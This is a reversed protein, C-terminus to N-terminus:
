RLRSQRAPKRQRPVSTEFTLQPRSLAGRRKGPLGRSSCPPTPRAPLSKIALRTSSYITQSVTGALGSRDRWFLRTVTWVVRLPRRQRWSPDGTVCAGSAPSVGSRM